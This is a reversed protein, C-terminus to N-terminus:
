INFIGDIFFKCIFGIVKKFKSENNKLMLIFVIKWIYRRYYIKKVCIM